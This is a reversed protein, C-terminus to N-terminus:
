TQVTLPVNGSNHIHNNKKVRAIAVSRGRGYQVLYNIGVAFERSLFVLLVKWWVPRHVCPFPFVAPSEISVFKFTIIWLIRFSCKFYIRDLLCRSYLFCGSHFFFVYSIIMEGTAYLRSVQDGVSPTKIVLHQPSYRYIYLPSFSCPPTLFVAFHHTGSNTSKV